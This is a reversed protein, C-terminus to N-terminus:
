PGTVDAGVAEIYAEIDSLQGSDFKSTEAMRPLISQWQQPTRSRIAVPQHCRACQGVYLARGRELSGETRGRAAAAASLAPTVVPARDALSACGAWALLFGACITRSLIRRM